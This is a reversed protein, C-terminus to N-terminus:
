HHHTEMKADLKIKGENRGSSVMTSRGREDQIEKKALIIKGKREKELIPFSLRFDFIM